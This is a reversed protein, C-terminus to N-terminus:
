PYARRTRFSSGLASMWWWCCIPFARQSAACPMAMCHKGTPDNPNGLFLMEAGGLRTAVEEPDPVFEQAESALLGEAEAGAGDCARWYDQSCPALIVVRRPRLARPHRLKLERADGSAVAGRCLAWISRRCLPYTRCRDGGYAAGSIPRGGGAVPRGIGARKRPSSVCSFDLPEHATQLESDAM